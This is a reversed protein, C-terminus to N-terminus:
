INELRALIWDVVFRQGAKYMILHHSDSPTPKFEPFTEELEKALANTQMGKAELLSLM